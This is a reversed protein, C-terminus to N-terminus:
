DLQLTWDFEKWKSVFELVAQRDADPPHKQKRRFRIPDMQMMGAITDVGFDKPFDPTEILQAYGANQEWEVFFYPFKKPVSRRLGKDRTRLLKTHTGWEEAQETLESKFFMPADDAVREQVPIVEMRTQWLGKSSPLVTEYFIPVQGEKRFMHRLSTQFRQVEDWVDDECGVYSDAHKVPVLYCHGKNLSLNSPAKVLSVHNGLAILMYKQFSPSEMWWWFKSTMSSEKDHQAIQRSREKQQQTVTTLRQTQYM